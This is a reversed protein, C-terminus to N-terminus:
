CSYACILAGAPQRAGRVRRGKGRRQCPYQALHRDEKNRKEKNRHRDEANRKQKLKEKAEAQARKKEADVWAALAAFAGGMRKELADRNPKTWPLSVAEVTLALAVGSAGACSRRRVHPKGSRRM